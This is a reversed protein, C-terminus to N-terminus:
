SNTQQKQADKGVRQKDDPLAPSGQLAWWSPATQLWVRKALPNWQTAPERTKDFPTPGSKPAAPSKRRM